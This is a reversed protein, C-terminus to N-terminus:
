LAQDGASGLHDICDRLRARDDASMDVFKIGAGCVLHATGKRIDYNWIVRGRAKIVEDSNPLTFTLMVECHIPLLTESAMFLGGNSINTIRNSLFMDKTSCDVPVHLECRPQRGTQTLVPPAISM